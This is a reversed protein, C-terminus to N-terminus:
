RLRAIPNARVPQLLNPHVESVLEEGEGPQQEAREGGGGRPGFVGGLRRPHVDLNSLRHDEALVSADTPHQDAVVLDGLELEEVLVLELHAAELDARGVEPDPVAVVHSVRRVELEGDVPIERAEHPAEFTYGRTSRM